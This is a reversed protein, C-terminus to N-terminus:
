KNQVTYALIKFSHSLKGYNKLEEDGITFLLNLVRYPLITILKYKSAFKHSDKPDFFHTVVMVMFESLVQQKDANVIWIEGEYNVHLIVKELVDQTATQEALMNNSREIKSLKSNETEDLLRDSTRNVSSRRLFNDRIWNLM